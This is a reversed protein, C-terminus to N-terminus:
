PIILSYNPFLGLEFAGFRDCTQGSGQPIFGLENDNDRRAAAAAAVPAVLLLLPHARPAGTKWEAGFSAPTRM